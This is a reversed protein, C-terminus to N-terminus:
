KENTLNSNEFRKRYFSGTELRQLLRLKNIIEEKERMQYVKSNKRSCKENQSSKSVFDLSQKLLEILIYLKRKFAFQMQGLCMGIIAMGLSSYICVVLIKVNSNKDNRKLGPVMDGFGLTTLTVYVFYISESLTWKEFYSFIFGGILIYIIIILLALMFPVEDNYISFEDNFDDEEDDLSNLEDDEDECYSYEYAVRYNSSDFDKLFFNSSLKSPTISQSDQICIVNKQENLTLNDYKIARQRTKNQRKAKKKKSKLEKWYKYIPNKSKFEKCIFRLSQSFLSSLSTLCILFIPIGISAYCICVVRGEWTVPAIFGYGVTSMLTVSFLLSYYFNWRTERNCDQGYYRTNHEIEIIEKRFEELLENIRMFDHLHSYNYAEKKVKSSSNKLDYNNSSTFKAIDQKDTTYSLRQLRGSINTTKIPKEDSTNYLVYNVITNRYIKLDKNFKAKGEECRRLEEHRELIQFMLAGFVSYIVVALILCINNILLKHISKSNKKKIIKETPEVLISPNQNERVNKLNKGLFYSNSYRRNQEMENKFVFSKNSNSKNSIM